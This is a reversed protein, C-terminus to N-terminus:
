KRVASHCQLQLPHTYPQHSHTGETSVPCLDFCEEMQPGLLDPFLQKRLVRTLGIWLPYLLLEAALLCVKLVHCRSNIEVSKHFSHPKLFFSLNCQSCQNVQICPSHALKRELNILYFVLGKNMKRCYMKTFFIPNLVSLRQFAYKKLWTPTKADLPSQPHNRNIRSIHGWGHHPVNKRKPSPKVNVILIKM